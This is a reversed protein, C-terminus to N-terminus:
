WEAFPRSNSILYRRNCEDWAICCVHCSPIFYQTSPCQQEQGMFIKLESSPSPTSWHVICYQAFYMYSRPYVAHVSLQTLSSWAVDWSTGYMGKPVLPHPPCIPCLTTNVSHSMGQETTDRPFQPIPHVPPVSAQPSPCWPINKM